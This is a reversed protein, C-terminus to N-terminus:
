QETIELAALMEKAAVTATENMYEVAKELAEPRGLAMFIGFLIKTAACSLSMGALIPDINNAETFELCESAYKQSLTELLQEDTM